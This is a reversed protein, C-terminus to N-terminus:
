YLSKFFDDMPFESHVFQQSKNIGKAQNNVPATPYKEKKRRGISEIRNLNQAHIYLMRMREKYSYQMRTERLM